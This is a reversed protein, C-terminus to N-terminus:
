TASFAIVAKTAGGKSVTDGLSGGKLRATSPSHKKRKEFIPARRLLRRQALFCVIVIDGRSSLSRNRFLRKALGSFSPGSSSYLLGTMNIASRSMANRRLHFSANSRRPDATMSEESLAPTSRFKEFM